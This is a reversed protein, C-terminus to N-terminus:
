MWGRLKYEALGLYEHMMDSFRLLNSPTPILTALKRYWPLPFDVVRFDTPAPIIDVEPRLKRFVGVSRPMHMASTVLLVRRIGREKFLPGLNVAHEHTNAAQTETLLATKPVGLEELLDVMDAAEPHPAMDGTAVSGTCIVLPALGTRYLYVGYLLRDGAENVEVTPRPLLKWESGGGLILIADAGPLAGTSVYQRELHKMPGRWLWGNGCIMLVAIALWFLARSLKQRKRFVASALLLIVALSTPYLLKLLLSYAFSLM